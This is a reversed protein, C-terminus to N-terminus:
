CTAMPTTRLNTTRNAETISAPLRFTSHWTTTIKRERTGSAPTYTALNAPCSAVSPAFGEVRVTELNRALDHAYCTLNNNFDRTSGSQRQCRLHRIEARHLGRLHFRVATQRAANWM